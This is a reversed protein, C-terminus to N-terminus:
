NLMSGSCRTRSFSIGKKLNWTLSEPHIEEGLNERNKNSSFLHPDLAILM